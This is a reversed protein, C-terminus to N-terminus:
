CKSNVITVWEDPSMGETSPLTVDFWLMGATLAGLCGRQQYSGGEGKAPVIVKKSKDSWTLAQM